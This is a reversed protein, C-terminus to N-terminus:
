SADWFMITIFGCFQTALFTQYQRYNNALAAICGHLLFFLLFALFRRVARGRSCRQRDRRRAEMRRSLGELFEREEASLGASETRPAPPPPPPSPPQRSFLAFEHSYYVNRNLVNEQRYPLVEAPRGRRPENRPNCEGPCVRPRGDCAPKRM